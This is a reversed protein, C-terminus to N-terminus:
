RSCRAQRPVRDALMSSHPLVHVSVASWASASARHHVAPQVLVCDHQLHRVVHPPRVPEVQLNQVLVGRDGTRQVRREAIGLRELREIEVGQLLVQGGQHRVRLVPPRRIVAMVAREENAHRPVAGAGVAGPIATATCRGARLPERRQVAPRVVRVEVLCAAQQPRDLLLVALRDGPRVQHHQRAVDRQVRHAELREAESAPALVSPLRLLVDVPPRLVGPQAVLAISTVPFQRCRERGHLHAQNVDVWFARVAHGVRNRRRPVDTLREAAHRHVVGLRHRQDGASMREALAVARSVRAHIDPRLRLTRRGLELAQAPDVAVAGALTVVRDGATQLACPGGVRDPPVVVVELVQEAELPLQDAARSPRLLPRWLGARRRVEDGVRMVCGLPMRRHHRRRVDGHPGVRGVLRHRAAEVLVRVLERVGERPGPELEHVAVHPWHRAVQALVHRGLFQQPLVRDRSDIVRQDVVRADPRQLGLDKRQPQRHGVQDRGCPRRCRRETSGVLTTPGVAPPEPQRRLLVPLGVLRGQERSDQRGKLAHLRREVRRLRVPLPHRQGVQDHQAPGGRDLLRRLRGPVIQFHRERRAPHIRRLLLRVDLRERHQLRHRVTEAVVELGLISERRLLHQDVLRLQQRQGRRLHRHQDTPQAHQIRVDSVGLM